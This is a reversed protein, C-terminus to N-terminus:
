LLISGGIGIFAEDLDIFLQTGALRGRYFACNGMQGIQEEVVLTIILGTDPDMEEQIPATRSVNKHRVFAWPLPVDLDGWSFEYLGNYIGSYWITAIAGQM